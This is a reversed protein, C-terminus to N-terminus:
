RAQMMHANEQLPLADPCNSASAELNYLYLRPIDHADNLVTELAQLSTLQLVTLFEWGVLLIELVHEQLETDSCSAGACALLLVIMGHGKLGSSCFTTKKPEVATINRGGERGGKEERGGERKSM